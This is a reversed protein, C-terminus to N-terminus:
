LFAIASKKIVIARASKGNLNITKIRTDIDKELFGYKDLLELVTSKRLGHKTNFYEYLKKHDLALGSSLQKLIAGGGLIFTSLETILWEKDFEKTKVVKLGMVCYNERLGFLVDQLLYSVEKITERGTYSDGTFERLILTDGVQYNRDNFRIEFTKDGSLVANYYEPLIKLEHVM